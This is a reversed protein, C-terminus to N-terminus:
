RGATPAPRGRSPASTQLTMSQCAAYALANLTWTESRCPRSRDPRDGAAGTARLREVDRSRGTRARRRCGAAGAVAVRDLLQLTWLGSRRGGRAATWAGSRARPDRVSGRRGPSPGFMVDEVRRMDAALMWLWTSATNAWCSASWNPVRRYPEQELRARVVHVDVRAEVGRHDAEPLLGSSTWMLPPTVTSAPQNPPLAVWFKQRDVSFKTTGLLAPVPPGDGLGRRDAAHVDPAVRREGGGAVAPCRRSCRRCCSRRCRRGTNAAATTCGPCCEAAPVASHFM